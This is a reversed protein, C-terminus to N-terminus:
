EYLIDSFAFLFVAWLLAAAKRTSIKYNSIIDFKLLAYFM